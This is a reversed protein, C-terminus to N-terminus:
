KFKTRQFNPNQGMGRLWGDPVDGAGKVSQDQKFQPRGMDKPPPPSADLKGYRQRATSEGWKQTEVVKSLGKLGNGTIGTRHKDVNGKDVMKM